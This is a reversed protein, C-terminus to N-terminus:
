KSTVGNKAMDKVIKGAQILKENEITTDNSTDGKKFSKVTSELSKITSELSAIKNDYEMLVDIIHKLDYGTIQQGDKLGNRTTQLRLKTNM